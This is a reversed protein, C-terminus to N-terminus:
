IPIDDNPKRHTIGNHEHRSVIELKEKRMDFSGAKHHVEEVTWLDLGYPPCMIARHMYITWRKKIGNHTLRKTIYFYTPVNERKESKVRWNYNCLRLWDDHDLLVTHQGITLTKYKSAIKCRRKIGGWM